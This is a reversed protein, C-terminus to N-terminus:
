LIEGGPGIGMGANDSNEVGPVAWSTMGRLM